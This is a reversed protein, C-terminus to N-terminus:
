GTGTAERLPESGATWVVSNALAPTLTGDAQEGWLYALTTIPVNAYRLGVQQWSVAGEPRVALLANAGPEIYCILACLQCIHDPKHHAVQRIPSFRRGSWRTSSASRSRM